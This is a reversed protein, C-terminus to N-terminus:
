IKIWDQRNASWKKSYKIQMVFELWYRDLSFCDENKDNCFKHFANIMFLTSDFKTDRVYGPFKDAVMGQLQCQAPLWTMKIVNNAILKGSYINGDAYFVKAQAFTPFKHDTQIEVAMEHMKIFENESELNKIINIANIGM